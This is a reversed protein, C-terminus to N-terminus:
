MAMFEDVARLGRGKPEEDPVVARQAHSLGTFVDALRGKAQLVSMFQVAQYRSM